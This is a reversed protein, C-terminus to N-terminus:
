FDISVRLRDYFYVTVVAVAVPTSFYPLRVRCPTDPVAKYTTQLSACGGVTDASHIAGGDQSLM